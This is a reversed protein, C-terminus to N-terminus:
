LPLTSGHDRWTVIYSGTMLPPPGWGLDEDIEAGTLRDFSYQGCMIRGETVMTVRLTMPITGGLLRTVFQGVNAEIM